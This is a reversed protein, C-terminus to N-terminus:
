EVHSWVIGRVIRSIYSQYVDYEAALQGQSKEGNRYQRRIRRIDEETFKSWSINEGRRCTIKHGNGHKIRDRQNSEPTDWRLNQLSNNLIDGDNHCAEQGEPRPGIFTLLIVIHLKTDWREGLDNTLAAGLYGERGTPNNKMIRGKIKIRTMRGNNWQKRSFYRDLSRIRGLSSAQYIGVYGPVDKWIEKVKDSERM